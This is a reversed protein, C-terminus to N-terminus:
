PVYVFENANFLALCFDALAAAKAVDADAPLDNPAAVKLKRKLRDRAAETQSALYELAIAREGDRPLRGFCRRYAEEVWREPKEKEQKMIQAAMSRSQAQTFPGNMLILAQPAFTSIARAGCPTLTDPQDFAELLPQRVNRKAFLYISRRLHQKADKTVQWLGDPEGETFILDYVEPELEVRVMPGGLERNLTGSATLVADRITEGELRRRNMRWVLRNEPDVEQADRAAEKLDSNRSSQRYTTSLVMLKHMHKVKWGSSVFETALWDLLEPHTPREGRTGFDNPTRVIGKGFHHQWLRNVFVRATLPHDPSALWAALDKRTLKAASPSKNELTDSGSSGIAVNFIRPFGSVVVAGKKELEGRRLIHTPKASGDDAVAWAQSPPIPLEAELAHQEERLAVRRARDEPTLAAITEDWTVKLLTEADKALQKQEPTRKGAEVELAERMARDLGAKKRERIKAQYPADLAAVKTKLPAIKAMTALIKTQVASREEPTSFDVDKARTTAFFAELRYYDAQSIPDFKHDHCRACNMTLGLFASGIGMVMETRVEYRLSEPDVNGSIVHTPGCRHMGSAVWLESNARVDRGAALEDGAVQETLFRNFPKDDNFSKVVYDRYHWAHPRESDGEYGNTEAYRVLDLWHQAWREGYHPSALLRDVLREYADPGKDSLFAGIEAITPPLGILDFSVRRILTLKDAERTSSIGKEDRKSQIFADIPNRTAQTGKVKPVEPRAPKIFAWHRRDSEKLPPEIPADKSQARVILASAFLVITSLGLRPM